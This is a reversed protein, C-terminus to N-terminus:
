ERERWCSRLTTWLSIGTRAGNVLRSVFSKKEPSGNERHLLQRLVSITAGIKAASSWIAGAARLPNTVRRIENKLDNWEHALQSRNLESEMLLMQKRIELPTLRIKDPM